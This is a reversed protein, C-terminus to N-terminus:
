RAIVLHPHDNRAVPLCASIAQNSPVEHFRGMFLLLFGVSSINSIEGYKEAPWGVGHQRLFADGTVQNPSPVASSPYRVDFEILVCAM